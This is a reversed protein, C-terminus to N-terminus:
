ANNGNHRSDTGSPRPNNPCLTACEKVLALLNHIAELTLKTPPPAHRCVLNTADRPLRLIIHERFFVCVHGPGHLPRSVSHIPFTRGYLPHTPDNVEVM